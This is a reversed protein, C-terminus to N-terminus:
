RWLQNELEKTGTKIIHDQAQEVVEESVTLFM